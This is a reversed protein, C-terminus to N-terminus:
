YGRTHIMCNLEDLNTDTISLTGDFSAGSSFKTDANWNLAQSANIDTGNFNMAGGVILDGSTTLTSTSIGQPASAGDTLVSKLYNFNNRLWNMLTTSVPSDVDVSSAPIVKWAM